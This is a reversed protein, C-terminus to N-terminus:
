LDAVLKRLKKNKDELPKLRRMETPLLREYKKKLNFYTAQSIGAKRGIDAIPIGDAGAQSHDAEARGFCEIGEDDEAGGLRAFGLGFVRGM